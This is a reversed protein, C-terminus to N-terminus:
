TLLESYIKNYEFKKALTLANVSYLKNSTLVKEIADFLDKKNYSIVIGAKAKEVEKSFEPVATTIVPTANALYAKIKSPDGWYHESWETPIYTALGIKWRSVLRDIEDHKDIFGYFKVADLYKGSVKVYKDHASRSGVISIATM